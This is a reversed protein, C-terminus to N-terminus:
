HRPELSLQNIVLMATQTDQGSAAKYRDIAEGTKHDRLLAILQSRLPEQITGVLLRYHAEREKRAPAEDRFRKVTQETPCPQDARWRGNEQVLYVVVTGADDGQQYDIHLERTPKLPFHGFSEIGKLNNEDVASITSTYKAPIPERWMAALSADYFDKDEATICARSKSDYLAQLRAADKANYAAIYETVFPKIEAQSVQSQAHAYCATSLSLLILCLSRRKVFKKDNTMGVSFYM